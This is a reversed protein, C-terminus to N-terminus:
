TDSSNTQIHSLASGRERVTAIRPCEQIFEDAMKLGVRERDLVRSNGIVLQLGYSDLMLDPDHYMNTDLLLSLAMM